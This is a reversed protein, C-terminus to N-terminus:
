FWSKFWDWIKLLINREKIIIPKEVEVFKVISPQEGLIEVNIKIIDSPLFVKADAEIPYFSQITIENVGLNETDVKVDFFNDRTNSNLNIIEEPLFINTNKIKQNIRVMIENSPLNNTLKIRIKGEQKHRLTIGGEVDLNLPNVISFIYTGVLKNEDRRVEGGSFYQVAINNNLQIVDKDNLTYSKGEYTVISNYCGEPTPPRVVDVDSPFACNFFQNSTFVSSGITFSNRNSDSFTFTNSGSVQVIERKIIERTITTTKIVQSCVWKGAIKINAQDVNCPNTVGAVNPTAYNITIINGNPNLSGGKNLTPYPNPVIPTEGQTIDRLVAPRCPYMWKTVPFSLDDINFTQAFSEQISVEDPSLDCQFQAKYGIFEIVRRDNIEGNGGLSIYFPKQVRLTEKYFGNEYLDVKSNDLTQPVYRFLYKGEPANGGKQLNLVVVEQGYFDKKTVLESYTAILQGDPTILIPCASGSNSCTGAQWRFKDNEGIQTTIDGDFRDAWYTNYESKLQSEIDSLIGLKFKPFGIFLIVVVLVIAILVIPIIGKNSNWMTVGKKNTKHM